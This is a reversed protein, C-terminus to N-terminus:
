VRFSGCAPLDADPVVNPGPEYPEGLFAAECYRRLEAEYGPPLKAERAALWDVTFDPYRSVPQPGSGVIERMRQRAIWEELRPVPPPRKVRDGRRGKAKAARRAKRNGETRLREWEEELLGERHRAIHEAYEALSVARVPVGDIESFNAM